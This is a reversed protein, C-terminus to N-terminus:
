AKRSRRTDGNTDGDGSLILDMRAAAEKQLGPVAKAYVDLTMKASAHGLREQVVKVNEGAALSLTASSHRLDHFRLRHIGARALLPRFVRHLFNDKRMPNGKSNAFVWSSLPRQKSRHEKLLQVVYPSLDIRRDRKGKPRELSPKGDVGLTLTGVVSLFANELNVARWQLGFLEGQRMGTALAIYFLAYHPGLKATALLRHAEDTTLSRFEAYTHKPKDHKLCPNSAVLEQVVATDFAYHLIRFVLQRTRSGIEKLQHSLLVRVDKPKLKGLRVSGIYPIIHKRAIDSYLEHTRPARDRAIKELWTELFDVMPIKEADFSSIQRSTAEDCKRKAEEFTRGYVSVRRRREDADYKYIRARIM